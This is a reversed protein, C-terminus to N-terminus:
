IVVTAEKLSYILLTCFYSNNLSKREKAEKLLLEKNTDVKSSIELLDSQQRLYITLKYLQDM